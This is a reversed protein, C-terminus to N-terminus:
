DLLAFLGWLFTPGTATKLQTDWPSDQYLGLMLGHERSPMKSWFELSGPSVTASASAAPAVGHPKAGFLRLLQFIARDVAECLIQAVTAVTAPPATVGSRSDTNSM